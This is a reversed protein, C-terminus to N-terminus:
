SGRLRHIEGHAAALQQNLDKIEAKLAAIEIDCERTQTRLQHRLAAIISSGAGTSEPAPEAIRPRPTTSAARIEEFLDPHNYITKRAVRAHRAVANPNIDLGQRQMERLAKRIKRRAESRRQRSANKLGETSRAATM